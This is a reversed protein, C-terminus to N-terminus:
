EDVSPAAETSSVAPTTDTSPVPPAAPLVDQARAGIALVTLM